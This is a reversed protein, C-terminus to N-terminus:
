PVPELVLEFARRDLPQGPAPAGSAVVRERLGRRALELVRHHCYPNNGPRGFLFYAASTCGGLCEAAYYCTRCFGWLEDVRRDRSGRMALSREWIDVLGHERVNGAGFGATALSACGKVTGDAEVGVVGIGAGCAAFHGHPGGGRLLAESPGFYGINDAAHLAVGLERARAALAPVRAFLELLEYPQLLLEPDDGARGTPFTLQVLWGYAGERGLTELVAPLDPLSRRNVQTNGSVLVGAARMARLAALAARHSGALGRQGDHAAEEGDLSVSAGQLGADAAARALEPTVGRGATVMTCQMGHRRVARVVELWDDRLYTEGGMLTVELVGLEALQAVLALRERTDLENLRERGARSGCHRCAQDCRLTTEWVAYNPRLRRDIARAEAAFAPARPTPSTSPALPVRRRVDPRRDRDAEGAARDGEAAM